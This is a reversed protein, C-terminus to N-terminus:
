CCRAPEIRNNRRERDARAIRIGEIACCLQQAQRALVPEFRM